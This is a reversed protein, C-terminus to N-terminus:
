ICNTLLCSIERAKRRFFYCRFKLFSSFIPWKKRSLRAIVLRDSVHLIDLEDIYKSIFIQYEIM